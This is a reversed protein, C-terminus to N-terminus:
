DKDSLRTEPFIEQFLGRVCPAIVEFVNQYAKLPKRYPDEIDKGRKRGKLWESLLHIKDKSKHSILLALNRQHREMVIVWDARDMVEFTLLNSQHDSIDFGMQKCVLCAEAPARTGPTAHTGASYVNGKKVGAMLCLHQFYGAAMPSRCLNGTCVFLINKM